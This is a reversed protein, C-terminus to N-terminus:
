SARARSNLIAVLSGATVFGIIWAGGHDFIHDHVQYLGLSAGIGIGYGFWPQERWRIKQRKTIIAVLPWFSTAAVYARYPEGMESILRRDQHTGGVFALVIVGVFFVFSVSSPALLAHAAAWIAVGSFFPHRTVQQVGRAPMVRHRFTAMPLRPYVLVATIFLSFGVVSLALLAGRVPPITVLFSVHPEDLHHLAVYHVLAAFTVIAIVSYVLIFGTEGMGRVLRARVPRATLGVHTGGFLLWLLATVLGEM